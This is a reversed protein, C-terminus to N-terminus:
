FAVNAYVIFISIKHLGLLFIHASNRQNAFTHLILVSPVLPRLLSAHNLEHRATTGQKLELVPLTM